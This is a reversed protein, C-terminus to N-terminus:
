GLVGPVFGYPTPCACQFGPPGPQMAWCWFQQTFCITGPVHPPVQAIAVSGLLLAGALTMLAAFRCIAKAWLRM